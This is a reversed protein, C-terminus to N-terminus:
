RSVGLDNWVRQNVIKDGRLEFRDIFRVSAIPAGDVAEGNLVGYCYVVTVGGSAFADFGEYTKKVFRYRGKSWAALDELTTFTRGGPFTMVFDPAVHSRATDFARSAMADLYSRVVGHSVRLPEDIAADLTANSPNM